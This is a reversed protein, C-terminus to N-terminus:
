DVGIKKMKLSYEFAGIDMGLFVPRKIKGAYLGPMYEVPLPTKATGMNVVASGSLPMYKFKKESNLFGPFDGRIGLVMGDPCVIQNSIWNNSGYIMGVRNWLTGMGTFINNRIDVKCDAYQVDIFRNLPHRGIITNNFLYLTGSRSSEGDGGWHIMNHNQSTAGQILVNGYVHADAKKYGEYDVLDLQRNNGEEIWNYRIVTDMGRDKLNQGNAFPKGFYCAEVLTKAAGLYVNHEQDSSPNAHNGNNLIISNKITLHSVDPAHWTLIGNGCSYILCNAITIDRGKMIWIGAANGTYKIKENNEFTWETNNAHGLALDRIHIHDATTDYGIRILYRGSNMTAWKQFLVANRGDIVPRKGKDTIGMIVIPQSVTGSRRIVIRSRYPAKRYYIKVQDGPKLDDFPVQDLEQHAKGPGVEYIAARSDVTLGCFFLMWFVVTFIAKKMGQQIKSAM